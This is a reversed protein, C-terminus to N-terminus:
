LFYHYNIRRFYYSPDFYFKFQNDSKRGKIFSVELDCYIEGKYLDIYSVDIMNYSGIIRVLSYETFISRLISDM